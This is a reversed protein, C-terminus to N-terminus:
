EAEDQLEQEAALWDADANGDQYGGEVYIEYARQRIDQESTRNNARNGSLRQPQPSTEPKANNGTQTAPQQTLTPGNKLVQRTGTADAM